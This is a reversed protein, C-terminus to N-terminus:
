HTRRRRGNSEGDGLVGNSSALASVAVAARASSSACHVLQSLEFRATLRWPQVVQLAAQDLAAPQAGQDLAVPQLADGRVWRDELLRNALGALVVIRQLLEQRLRIVTDRLDVLMQRDGVDAVHGVRQTWDVFLRLAPVPIDAQFAR